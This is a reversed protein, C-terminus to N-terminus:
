PLFIKWQSLAGNKKSKDGSFGNKLAGLDQTQVGALYFRVVLSDRREGLIKNVTDQELSFGLGLGEEGFM